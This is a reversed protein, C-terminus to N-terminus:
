WGPVQPGGSAPFSVAPIQPQSLGTQSSGWPSSNHGVFLIEMAKPTPQPFVDIALPFPPFPFMHDAPCMEAGKRRREHEDREGCAGLRSVLM